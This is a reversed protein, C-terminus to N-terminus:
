NVSYFINKTEEAFVKFGYKEYFPLARNHDLSNTQLIIKNIGLASIRTIANNMLELGYGKAIYDDVLGFHVIRVEKEKLYDNRYDLEVCGINKENKKMIHIEVKPDHIIKKLENDNINLRGLWNYKKGVDNYIKKYEDLEINQKHYIEYNNKKPIKEISGLFELWKINISKSKM